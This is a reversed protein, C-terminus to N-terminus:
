GAIKLDLDEIMRIDEQPPSGPTTLYDGIIVADAGASFILPQLRRLGTQRGGCIRIEKDPLIFRFLVIAKLLPFPSLAPFSETPTGPIPNLFNLPVTHVDLDKLAFALDIRQAEDEGLGIIGGCCVELGSQRVARVTNLRDSYNHSTCIRGFHSESTELNHNYRSLGAAKLRKLQSLSLIGLSADVKLGPHRQRIAAIARCIVGLEDGGVSRGSTVICFRHARAAVARDAREVLEKEPVLPYVAVRANHHRSQSCFSCNEPCLGSRANTIACLNVTDGRYRRRIRSASFLLVDLDQPGAAVFRLAEKPSLVGGGLVKDALTSIFTLM